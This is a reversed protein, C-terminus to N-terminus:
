ALQITQRLCGIKGIQQKVCHHSTNGWSLTVIYEPFSGIIAGFGDPLLAANEKNWDMIQEDLGAHARLAILREVANNMQNAGISFFYANQVTKISYIQEADLGFLVISLLLLSILVEILSFGRNRRKKNVKM